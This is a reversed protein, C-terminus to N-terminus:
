GSEVESLGLMKDYTRHFNRLISEQYASFWVYPPQKTKLGLYVNPLNAMDQDLIRGLSGLEIANTWPEDLGLEHLAAPPPKPKGEPWPALLMVEMICEEHNDGNPRWRYVIRGFGGWPAFNPFLNSYSIENLEADSFQEAEEGIVTRLWNRNHDAFDRYQDLAQQPTPYLGRMASAASSQVHGLRGWNGFVDYHGDAYDGGLLLLQPHTAIVHYQENFAEMVVKWNAKVVKQVRAHIHRNEYKFKAYHAIMEPGMFEELSIADPDPNIFIWGGWAGVKAGPLKSAHERVGPFDWETTIHRLQGDITWTWGHFPCRFERAKKGSCDRLQRGRHLCANYHAKFERQGTRVILFSLHTIRYLYHDGVEPIEDERCVMQWTKKWLKEVELAHYEQKIFRDVPVRAPGGPMPAKLRYVEPIREPHRDNELFFDQDLHAASRMGEETQRGPDPVYKGVVRPMQAAAEEAEPSGPATQGDFNLPLMGWYVDYGPPVNPGGVYLLLQSDAYTLEGEIWTGDSKFLGHKGHEKDEVRVIGDGLEQYIFGSIPHPERRM